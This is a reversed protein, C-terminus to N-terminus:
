WVSGGRESITSPLGTDADNSARGLLAAGLAEGTSLTELEEGGAEGAQPMM